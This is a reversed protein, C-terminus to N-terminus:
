RLAITMGALGFSVQFGTQVGRLRLVVGNGNRVTAVQGGSIFAAGAGVGGYSGSISAPGRLNSATGRLDVAAIGLSGVSVGGVALRYPRGHYLLVGDGGAAGVVFGAKVIHLSVSGTTQAQSRTTTAGLLTAAAVVAAALKLVRTSRLM